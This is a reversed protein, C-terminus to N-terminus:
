TIHRQIQLFCKRIKFCEFSWNPEYMKEFVHKYKSIRVHDGVRFKTKKPQSEKISYVTSLLKKENSKTVDTPKMKITRHMRNNYDKCLKKIITTWRYNGNLSFEKWMNTKITRNFREVIGAKLVSYVSYHNIRHKAMLKKFDKNFFEKGDDTHLNKCIRGEAFVDKMAKTVNEATKNKIPITWAYKSFTDIVTLLYKFGKNQKSFKIMDVLDAQFTEDIGRMIVKLRNYRKRAPKHIENVVQQKSM